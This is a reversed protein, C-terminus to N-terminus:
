WLTVVRIHYYRGCRVQKSFWHGLWNWWGRLDIEGAGALIERQLHRSPQRMQAGLPPQRRLRQLGIGAVDALAQDNRPSCQPASTVSGRKAASSALSTLAKMADRRASSM